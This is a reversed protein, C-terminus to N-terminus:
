KTKSAKEQDTRLAVLLKNIAEKEAPSINEPSPDDAGVLETVVDKLKTVFGGWISGSEDDDYMNFEGHAEAVRIAIKRLVFRFKKIDTESLIPTLLAVARAAEEPVHLADDAWADWLDRSDLTGQCIQRIFPPVHVESSLDSLLREMARMEKKDDDEGGEDAAHSVWIAVKYPLSVLLLRDESSLNDIRFRVPRQEDVGRGM